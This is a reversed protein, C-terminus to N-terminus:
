SLAKTILGHNGEHNPARWARPKVLDPFGFRNPRSANIGPKKKMNAKLVRNWAEVSDINFADLTGIAVVILDIIADVVEEPDNENIAKKGEDIEEQLFAFRFKIYERLVEPSLNEVLETTLGFKKHMKTIDAVFNKSM